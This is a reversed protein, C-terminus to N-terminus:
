YAYHWLQRIITHQYIQHYKWRYKITNRVIHWRNAWVGKGSNFVFDDDYLTSHVVKSTYPNNTIITKDNLSISLYNVAFDTAVEVFRRMHFTECCTYFAPWDLKSADRRLFMAWDLLQKLRLGEELFHALAHYTLFLANFMPPPLLVSTGPLVDFDVGNLSDVIVKNLKKSSRGGRTHVFSKHNEILEGCYHIQSHKYWHESVCDAFSRAVDNGKTYEGFLYCDIDGSARHQPIPYYTGLGMGKMLLMRIGENQWREQIDNIVILQKINCAEYSEEVLQQWKKLFFKFWNTDDCFSSLGYEDILSCIGDYVIASVGQRNVFHQLEIWNHKSLGKLSSHDIDRPSTTGLGIRLLLFLREEDM